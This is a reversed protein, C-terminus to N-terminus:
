SWCEPSTHGPKGCRYCTVIRRTNEVRTRAYCESSWHGKRGCRFCTTADQVIESRAYCDRAWHGSRGCRLCADTASRFELKESGVLKPDLNVQTYSGGRVNEVGFRNMYRKTVQDETYASANNFVELLEIPEHIQTWASGAGCVHDEVRNIVSETKGVYYKGNRLKLVYVNPM